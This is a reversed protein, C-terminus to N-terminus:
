GSNNLVQHKVTGCISVQFGSESVLGFFREFFSGIQQRVSEGRTTNKWTPFSPFSFSWRFVFMFKSASLSTSWTRAGYMCWILFFLYFYFLYRSFCYYFYCYYLSGILKGWSFVSIVKGRGLSFRFDCNRALSRVFAGYKFIFAFM